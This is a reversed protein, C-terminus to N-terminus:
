PSGAPPKPVGQMISARKTLFAQVAAKTEPRLNTIGEYPTGHAAGEDPFASKRMKHRQIVRVFEAGGWAGIETSVPYEERTDRQLDYFKAAIPNEGPGPVKLKLHEKVVSEMKNGSYLYVTDRRGKTEGELLSRVLDAQAHGKWDRDAVETVQIDGGRVEIRNPGAHVTLDVDEVRVAVPVIPTGEGGSVDGKPPSPLPARVDVTGRVGAVEIERLWRDDGRLLGALSFTIHVRDVRGSLVLHPTVTPTASLGRVTVDGFLSGSLSEVEIALGYDTGAERLASRVTGGILQWRFIWAVGCLVGLAVLSVLIRRLWRRLRTM